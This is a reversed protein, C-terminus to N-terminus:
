AAGGRFASAPGLRAGRFRDHLQRIMLYLQAVVDDRDDLVTAGIARLALGNWDGLEILTHCVDCALWDSRSVHEVDDLVTMTFDRAPYRWRPAEAYVNPDHFDCVLLTATM